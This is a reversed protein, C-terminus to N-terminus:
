RVEILGMRWLAAYMHRVPISLLQTAADVVPDGGTDIPARRMRKTAPAPALALRTAPQIPAAVDIDDLLVATM